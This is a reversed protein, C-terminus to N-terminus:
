ITNGSVFISSASLSKGIQITAVDDVIVSTTINGEYDVYYNRNTILSSQNSNVGGLSTVVVSDTDAVTQTSLGIFSEYNSSIYGVQAIVATGYNLNGTYAVVVKGNTSDYCCSTYTTTASEFVVPIGFSITTGSVVGELSTGYNSNGRYAILVKEAISDYCCSTHSTAVSEFVVPSGFSITTGSVTGVVATGLNSNGNYAIVVKENISDYCCSTHSTAVSEFVVPSGFSITTGSVTGVITTGWSSNGGDAYAVVVKGNTSDYCCSISFSSASEFVVPTGFSISTGSVTGVIATGWNSNGIDRYAIVVKGNTSDYCCSIYETTASEFVVPTGFSITTGSVTGVIATGWNSNGGDRYAIVVKGNISDYCCSTYSTTASEFVVPTGFSITTGSVTGVIATGWGSNGGDAYTIVVKENISDYCCSIYTSTASEFVVPSGMASFQGVNSVISVTGDNNLAVVDGATIAGSATFTLTGIEPLGLITHGNLDLDGGLQPSTDEVISSLGTAAQISFLWDAYTGSGNITTVNVTVSPHSYSTVIGEMYNDTNASSAIRLAAGVEWARESAEALTFSKSGTGITTSTTSSGKFGTVTTGTVDNAVTVLDSFLPLLNDWHGGNDLYRIGSSEDSTGDSYTNGNITVYTTM